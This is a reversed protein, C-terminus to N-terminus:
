NQARRESRGLTWALGVGASSGSSELYLPSAHNTAAGYSDYRVFGYVRVDPTIDKFASLGFRTAILGAQADYAPRVSTAFQPTVGYFYNNLKRDGFVLGGSVSMGWGAGIDRTECSLEPEFAVGQGRVGGGFELVARVPLELRVRSGATPRALTMKLRPGFEILTGLDPMGQRAAIDDSNAPLSVAFGIDFEFDDSHALRAGIHARDARLVEGRYILFPLILARSTRDVSGPYAPTSAAGGLVGAEWLPLGAEQAQAILTTALFGAGILTSFKM